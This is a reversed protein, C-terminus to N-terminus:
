LIKSILEILEEIESNDLIKDPKIKGQFVKRVYKGALSKPLKNNTEFEIRKRFKIKRSFLNYNKFYESIKRLYNMVIVEPRVDRCILLPNAENFNNIAKFLLYSYIVAVVRKNHRRMGRDNSDKVFRRKIIEKDQSKIMISYRRSDKVIGLATDDNWNNDIQAAIDVHYFKYYEELEM